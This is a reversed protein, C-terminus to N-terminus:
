VRGIYATFLDIAQLGFHPQVIRATRKIASVIHLRRFARLRVHAPTAARRWPRARRRSPSRSSCRGSRSSSPTSRRTAPTTSCSSAGPRGRLAPVTGAGWEAHRVRAGVAFPAGARRGDAVRGADCNDCNGCPPDYEEGFYGLLFARRCGRREAYARMMEVRSRDFARPTGGRAARARRRGRPTPRRTARSRATTPAGRGRRRGGPPAVATPSSPRDVAPTTSAADAPDVPGDRAALLRAVREARRREVQGGAFFRRLGLDEARYFLCARAPEGDRGPAASSRTTPTSRTRSTTTSSSACTPSTSAWASPSRRSSSTSATTTWSRRRRGRRAAEARMGGHYAAARVGRERSRPPSSRPARERRRTSSARGARSRSRRSCRAASASPTTSASSRRPPHEPRDFGRVVMAPDRM